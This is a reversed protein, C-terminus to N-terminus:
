KWRKNLGAYTQYVEDAWAVVRQNVIGAVDRYIRALAHEPVIGLGVENSILVCDHPSNDISELVQDLKALITDALVGEYYHMLNNIWFTVCDIILFSATEINTITDVLELPEEITTWDLPREDHHRKIRETMEDDTAIGTAIYIVPLNQGKSLNESLRNKGSRAGGIIAIRRKDM